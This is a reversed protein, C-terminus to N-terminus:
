ATQQSVTPELGPLLFAAFNRAVQDGLDAATVGRIAAVREAVHTVFAPENRKGRHPVPALYPADTEILLREAPVLKAVDRLAEARPFSVIGALSVYFGLDLAARAMDTDGTFCHFVGRLSPGAERLIAFTDDTAERTHIVVPLALDLALQVQARFVAQQVDRPSFDYHYDLGIEGIARAGEAAVGKRVSAGVHDFRGAFEGAKHPHIGVSFRVEPWLGRVRAAAASEKDDGASLICLAGTLGATRARGIVADLDGTFAEDALHCHSDIM